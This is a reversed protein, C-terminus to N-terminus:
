TLLGIRVLTPSIRVQTPSIRVEMNRVDVPVGRKLCWKIISCSGGRAASHLVSNKIEKCVNDIRAGAQLLLKAVKSNGNIAAWQLPTNGIVDRWHVNAGHRICKKTLVVDGTKSAEFLLRDYHAADTVHEISHVTSYELAHSSLESGVSAVSLDDPATASAAAISLGAEKLWGSDRKLQSMRRQEMALGPSLLVPLALGGGDDDDDSPPPIFKRSTRKDMM